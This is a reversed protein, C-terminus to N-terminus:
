TLIVRLLEAVEDGDHRLMGPTLRLVREGPLSATVRLTRLADLEWQGAERHHAGDVEITVRVREYRADLYHTRRGTRVKLQLSDPRPLQHRRLFRLLELESGAHAGLEVDDLVARVLPRRPLQPLCSLVERILVPASLRQQVVAAIRWEAARDTPALAAAHLVAAHPALM